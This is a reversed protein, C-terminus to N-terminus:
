ISSFSFQTSGDKVLLETMAWVYADGADPSTSGEYGSTTFSLLQDELEGYFGVHKIKNKEFIASVPEARRVKGRSAHVMKIPANQRITRITNEVMAGGFNKEAVIVDANWVDFMELAKKAWGSPSYHDTCDELLYATGELDIGAAVLGIKDSRTDEDGECGSPDVAIVIRVLPPVQDFNLRNRELGTMSWLAGPVESLFEGDLFRKREREPLSELLEIYEEPLNAMNHRPNMQMTAYLEPRPLSAGSTPEQKKMFLRYAWHAASPPNCDYYAKLSLGSNQALRTVAKNRASYSIQSIENLFITSHEQGLIKETRDKDDLGGFLMRSGNPIEFYWDTKNINYPIEPWCLKMVSPLTQAIISEKLHNFRFRLVAHTSEPAKLMRIVIARVILFTKGSRSGGRLLIHRAPSALLLNGEEQRPTLKFAVADESEPRKKLTKPITLARDSRDAVEIELEPGSPSSV